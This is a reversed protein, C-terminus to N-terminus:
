EERDKGYVDKVCWGKWIYERPNKASYYNLVNGIFTMVNHYNPVPMVLFLSILLPLCLLIIQNINNANIMILLLLNVGAGTGFVALDIPTFFGFILKSKKSNAPILFNRM